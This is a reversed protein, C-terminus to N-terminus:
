DESIEEGALYPALSAQMKKRAHFFLDALIHCLFGELPAIGPDLVWILHSPFLELTKELMGPALLLRHEMVSEPFDNSTKRLALSFFLFFDLGFLM